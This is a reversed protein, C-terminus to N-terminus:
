RVRGLSRSQQTGERPCLCLRRKHIQRSKPGHFSCTHILQDIRGPRLTYTIKNIFIREGETLTPMMSTGEVKVPQYSFVILIVFGVFLIPLAIRLFRVTRQM